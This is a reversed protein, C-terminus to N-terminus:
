ALLQSFIDLPTKVQPRAPSTFFNYIFFYQKREIKRTSHEFPRAPIGDKRLNVLCIQLIILLHRLLYPRGQQTVALGGSKVRLREFIRRAAIQYGHAPTVGDATVFKGGAPAEAGAFGGGFGDLLIFYVGYDYADRVGLMAFAGDGREFGATM